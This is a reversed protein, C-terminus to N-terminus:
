QRFYKYTLYRIELYFLSTNRSARVLVRRPEKRYHQSRFPEINILFFLPVSCNVNLRKLIKILEDCVGFWAIDRFIIM